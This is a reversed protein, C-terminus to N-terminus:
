AAQKEEITGSWGRNKRGCDQDPNVIIVRAPDTPQALGSTNSPTGQVDSKYRGSGFFCIAMIWRNKSLSRLFKKM